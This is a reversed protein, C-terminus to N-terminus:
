TPDEELTQVAEWAEAHRRGSDSRDVVVEIVSVGPAKWARVLESAIAESRDVSVFSAGYGEVLPGLDVGLPTVFLEEYHEAYGAPARATPLFDFIGGGGNNTVVFCASVGLRRAAVLGGLDHFFSVDGCLGLVRRGGAAAGLVCSVFGDIGNTGRNSFVPVDTVDPPWFWDLDRVALSNGVYLAADGPLSEVVARVVNGEFPPGPRALVNGLRDLASRDVDLWTDRWGPETSTEAVEEAIALCTPALSGHIMQRADAAPDPWGGTHDLVVLAPACTELWTAVTRSTPPAGVRVVVDPAELGSFRGARLLAEYSLVVRGQLAGRRLNSTPEALIPAGLRDALARVADVAEAAEEVDLTGCQLIPRRAQALLRAVSALAERGPCSQSSVVSTHATPGLDSTGNEAVFPETPHLPDRLPLNLHAVGAPKGRAVAVARCAAARVHRLGAVTSEPVGLDFSWLAHSGYLGVQDITQGASRERLEPPRDATLLILPVRAHHAEVAAPLFNAAASGSTCAVVVPRGTARALGLAFFASAREDVHTWVHVGSHCALAFALPASRNGPSVCADTVGSRALEDVLATMAEYSPNPPM